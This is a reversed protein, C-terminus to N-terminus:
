LKKLSNFMEGTWEKGAQTLRYTTELFGRQILHTIREDVESQEQDVLVALEKASATPQVESNPDRLSLIIQADGWVLKRSPSVNPSSVDTPM